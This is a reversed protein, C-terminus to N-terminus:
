VGGVKKLLKKLMADMDEFVKDHKSDKPIHEEFFYSFNEVVREFQNLLIEKKERLKNKNLEKETILGLFVGISNYIVDGESCIIVEKDNEDYSFVIYTGDTFKIAVDGGDDYAQMKEVIKGETAKVSKLATIKSM